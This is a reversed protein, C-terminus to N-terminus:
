CSSHKSLFKVMIVAIFGITVFTWPLSLLIGHGYRTGPYLVDEALDIMFLSTYTTNLVAPFFETFDVIINQRFKDFLSLYLYLVCM